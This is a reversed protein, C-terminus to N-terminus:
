MVLLTSGNVGNSPLGVGAAVCGSAAPISGSGNVTITDAVLAFCSAGNSSKSVAGNLTVSAHPLYVAGTIKWVTANGAAVVNVGTTLAPDQYIAVGQWPGSTPAQFDLAGGGTPAHTYPGATGSFIITLASGAATSLTFGNTDLQGNEIVLVSGPSASTIITNGTLQLDGCVVVTAPLTKNGSWLNSPPLPPAGWWKPKQPYNGGCSSGSPINTALHAYPDNLAPANCGNSTQLIGAIACGGTALVSGVGTLISGVGSLIGGVTDTVLALCTAGDVQLLAGNSTSALALLCFDYSQRKTAMAQATLSGGSLRLVRSFIQTPTTNTITVKYCDSKGDPCLQNALANVAVGNAGNTFGYRAAVARAELQYSSSNNLVATIVASDAAHQMAQQTRLWMGIDIALAAFGMIVLLSMAMIIGVAGDRNIRFILYNIFSISHQDCINRTVHCQIKM